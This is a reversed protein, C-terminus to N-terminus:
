SAKYLTLLEAIAKEEQNDKVQEIICSKLHNELISMDLKKLATQVARSQHIVDVCYADNELMREVAKIHGGIIKIRHIAKQKTTKTSKM